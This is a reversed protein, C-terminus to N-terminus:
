SGSSVAAYEITRVYRRWDPLTGNNIESIWQEILGDNDHWFSACERLFTVVPAVKGARLLTLALSLDPGFSNLQPSGITMGSALLHKEASAPDNDHVAVLGLITHGYYWANGCEWDSECRDSGDLLQRGFMEAEKVEGLRFRVQAAQRLFGLRVFTDSTLQLAVDTARAARILMTKTHKSDKNALALCLAGIRGPWRPNNPEMRSLEEFVALARPQNCLEFFAGANELVPSLHRTRLANEWSEGIVQCKGGQVPFPLTGAKSLSGVGPCHPYSAVLELINHQCLDDDRLSECRYGIERVLARETEPVDPTLKPREYANAALGNDASGHIDAVCVSL